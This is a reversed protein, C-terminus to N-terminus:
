FLSGIWQLLLQRQGGSLKIGRDGVHAALGIRGKNDKLEHIFEMARARSAANIVKGDSADPRPYAINDRMLLNVMTSKGAASAIKARWINKHNVSVSKFDTVAKDAKLTPADPSDLFEV